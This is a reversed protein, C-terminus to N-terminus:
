QAMEHPNTGLSARDCIFAVKSKGKFHNFNTLARLFTREQAEYKQALKILESYFIGYPEISSIQHVPFFRM